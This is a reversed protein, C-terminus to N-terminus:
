LITGYYFDLISVLWKDNEDLLYDIRALIDDIKQANM